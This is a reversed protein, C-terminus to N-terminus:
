IVNPLDRYGSLVREIRVGDPLIRFLIVYRGHPALRATEGLEPRLRYMEPNKAVILFKDRLEQVFSRARRPNHRAIYDGITRLDSEVFRSLQVKV